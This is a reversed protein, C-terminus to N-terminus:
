YDPNGVVPKMVQSGILSQVVLNVLKCRYKENTINFFSTEGNFQLYVNGLPDFWHVLLTEKSEVVKALLQGRFVPTEKESISINSISVMSFLIAVTYGMICIVIRNQHNVELLNIGHEDKGEFLGKFSLFKEQLKDYDILARAETAYNDNM